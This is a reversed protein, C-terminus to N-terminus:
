TEISTTHLGIIGGCKAPGLLYVDVEVEDVGVRFTQLRLLNIELVKRLARYQEADDTQDLPKFFADTSVEDIRRGASAHAAILQELSQGPKAEWHFADFPTDSESPYELGQSAERIATLERPENQPM